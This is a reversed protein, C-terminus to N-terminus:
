PAAGRQLATTPETGPQTWGGGLAKCLGVRAQLRALRYQVAQDRAAYLARQAELLALYDGTGAQYRLKAGEFAREAQLLSRAQFPGAEDLHRIASLANETDSLAEMIALRYAALLEEQRAQAAARQAQLRGHDFILQALGGGLALTGGTGPVTLVAANLAPNQVGAAATLNLSPFLAARAAALDAHASQLDAEAALMDPRRTLLESPLGPNLAPETLSALSRSELDFGEPVQGTLLALAARAEAEQRELEPIVLAAASSVSSQTALEVPDAGGLDFRAQVIETL